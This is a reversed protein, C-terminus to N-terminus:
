NVAGAPAFGAAALESALREEDSTKWLRALTGIGVISEIYAGLALEQVESPPVVVGRRDDGQEIFERRLYPTVLDVKLAKREQDSILDLNLLRYGASELSVGFTEVVAAALALPNEGAEAQLAAALDHVAQEPMLLAAAFANARTEKPDKARPYEPRFLQDDGFILHGLEHAATFRQRGFTLASNVFIIAVDNESDSVLLGDMGQPMPELCVDVDFTTQIFGEVDDIPADGLELLQRLDEAAKQGTRVNYSTVTPSFSPRPARERVVMVRRLLNKTELLDQARNLTEDINEPVSAQRLRAATALLQPTRKSRGLLDDVRVKLTDAIVGLEAASVKRRGSLLLSVASKDLGLAQALAAQTVQATEMATKIHGLMQTTDTM